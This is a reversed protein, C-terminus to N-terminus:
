LSKRTPDLALPPTREYWWNALLGGAVAGLLTMGRRMPSGIIAAGVIAGAGIVLAKKGDFAVSQDMPPSGQQQAYAAMPLCTAALVVLVSTLRRM